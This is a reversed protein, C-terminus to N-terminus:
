ATLIKSYMFRLMAWPSSGIFPADSYQKTEMERFNAQFLFRLLVIGVKKALCNPVDLRETEICWGYDSGRPRGRACSERACITV